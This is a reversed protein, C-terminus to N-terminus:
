LFTSFKPLAKVQDEVLRRWTIIGNSCITCTVVVPTTPTTTPQQRIDSSFVQDLNHLSSPNGGLCFSINGFIRRWSECSTTPGHSNPGVIRHAYELTHAWMGYYRTWSIYMAPTLKSCAQELSMAMAHSVAADVTDVYGHKAAYCLVEFPHKPIAAEMHLKCIEMASYVQYKEATESLSALTMFDVKKLEPQRMPYMFQFILELIQATESLPVSQDGPANTVGDPPGFAESHTDLNKRHVCFLVNDCSKFSIDADLTCFRTSRVLERDSTSQEPEPM